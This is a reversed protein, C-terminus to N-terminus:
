ILSTEPLALHRGIAAKRCSMQSGEDLTDLAQFLLLAREGLVDLFDVCLGLGVAKRGLDHAM